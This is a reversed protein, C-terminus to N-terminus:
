VKIHYEQQTLLPHLEFLIDTQLTSMEIYLQTLCQQILVSLPLQKKIVKESIVGPTTEKAKALEKRSKSYFPKNDNTFLNKFVYTYLDLNIRTRANNYISFFNLFFEHHAKLFKTLIKIISKDEKNQLLYEPYLM